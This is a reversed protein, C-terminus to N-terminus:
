GRRPAHWRAPTVAPFPTPSTALFHQVEHALDQVDSDSDDLLPDVAAMASPDDMLGVLTLAEFRVNPDKDKLVPQLVGLNIDDTFDGLSEVVEARVEPDSDSLARILIPVADADATAALARVAEIRKERSPHTTITHELEAISTGVESNAVPFDLGGAGQGKPKSGGGDGGNPQGARELRVRAAELRGNPSDGVDDRDVGAQRREHQARLMRLREEVRASYDGKAASDDGVHPAAVPPPAAVHLRIRVALVMVLVAAVAVVIIPLRDKM